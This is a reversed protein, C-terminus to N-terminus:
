CLAQKRIRELLDNVELRRAWQELYSVDVDPLQIEYVELVDLLQRELVPSM